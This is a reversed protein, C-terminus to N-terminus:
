KAYYIFMANQVIFSTIEAAIPRISGTEIANSIFIRINNHM